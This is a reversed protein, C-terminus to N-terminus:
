ERALVEQPHSLVLMCSAQARVRASAALLRILHQDVEFDPLGLLSSPQPCVRKAAGVREKKNRTAEARSTEATGAWAASTLRRARYLSERQGARDDM